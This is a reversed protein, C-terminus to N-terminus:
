QILLKPFIMALFQSAASVQGTVSITVDSAIDVAVRTQTGTMSGETSAASIISTSTDVMLAFTSTGYIATTSSNANQCMTTAGVKVRTTKTSAASNSCRYVPLYITDGVAIAGPKLVLSDFTVESVFAAGANVSESVFDASSPASFTITDVGTRSMGGYWGAALSPSGPYYVTYGDFNTAPIGHATATVTVVGSTCAATSSAALSPLIRPSAFNPLPAAGKGVPIMAQTNPNRFSLNGVVGITQRDIRYFGAEPPPTSSTPILQDAQFSKKGM